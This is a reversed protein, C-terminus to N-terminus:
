LQAILSELTAQKKNTVAIYTLYDMYMPYTFNMIDSVIQNMEVLAQQKQWRLISLCEWIDDAKAQCGQLALESVKLNLIFQVHDKYSDDVVPM